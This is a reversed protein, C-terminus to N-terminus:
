KLEEPDLTDTELASLVKKRIEPFRVRLVESVGEGEGVREPQVGVIRIKSLDAGLGRALKLVDDVGVQHLSLKKRDGLELLREAEFVVVEGPRRGTNVADVIVVQEYKELEDLLEFGPTGGEVVETDPNVGTEKLYRAFEVGVGDDGMLPNGLGIVLKM